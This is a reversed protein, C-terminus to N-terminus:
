GTKTLVFGMVGWAAGAWEQINFTLVLETDVVQGLEDEWDIVEMLVNELM